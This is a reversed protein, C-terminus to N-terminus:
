RFAECRFTVPLWKSYFLYKAAFKRADLPRGDSNGPLPLCSIETGFRVLNRRNYLLSYLTKVEFDMGWFLM